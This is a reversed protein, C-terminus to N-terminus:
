HPTQEPTLTVGPAKERRQTLKFVWKGLPNMKPLEFAPFPVEAVFNIYRRFRDTRPRPTVGHFSHGSNVFGVFRDATYAIRDTRELKDPEVYHGGFRIRGRGARYLDLDGGPTPDDEPKMYFLGSFIKREDDVHAPRVSSEAEVPTNIVFLLDLALHADGEEGRRKVQWDELAAGQRQELTPYTERLSDGFVRVIDSWFEASTHYSFFDRWEPSFRGNGIVAAAPIRVAQNSKVEPLSDLFWGTPPFSEALREYLAPDLARDVVIHAFPDSRVDAGSSNRLVSPAQDQTM